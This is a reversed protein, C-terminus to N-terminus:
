GTNGKEIALILNTNFKESRSPFDVQGLNLLLIVAKAQHQLLKAILIRPSTHTRDCSYSIKRNKELIRM